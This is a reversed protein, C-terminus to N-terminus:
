EEQTSSTGKEKKLDKGVSDGNMNKLFGNEKSSYFINNQSCKAESILSIKVSNQALREKEFM